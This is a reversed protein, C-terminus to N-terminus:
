ASAYAVGLPRWPVGRGFFGGAVAAAAIGLGVFPFGAAFVAIGIAPFAILWAIPLLSSETLRMWEYHVIVTATAALLAAPWGGLWAGVLAAAMLLVSSLVRLPLDRGIGSVASATRTAHIGM